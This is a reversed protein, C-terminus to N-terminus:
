WLVKIASNYSAPFARGKSGPFTAANSIVVWTVQPAIVTFVFGRPSHQLRQTNLNGLHLARPETRAAAAAASSRWDRINRTLAADRIHAHIVDFLAAGLQHRHAAWLASSISSPTTSALASTRSIASSTASARTSRGAPSTDPRIGGFRSLSSQQLPSSILSIIRRSGRRSHIARYTKM